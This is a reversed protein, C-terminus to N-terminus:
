CIPSIRHQSCGWSQRKYVDLHTYSVPAVRAKWTVAPLTRGFGDIDHGVLTVVFTLGVCNVVMYLLARPVLVSWGVARSGALVAIPVSDGLLPGTPVLVENFTVPRGAVDVPLTSTSRDRICM